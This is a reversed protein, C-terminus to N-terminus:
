LLAYESNPYFNFHMGRGFFVFGKNQILMLNYLPKNSALRSSGM